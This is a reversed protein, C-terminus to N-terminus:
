SGAVPLKSGLTSRYAPDHFLKATVPELDTCLVIAGAALLVLPLLYAVGGFLFRAGDALAGGVSGGDWGAYFVFAFFAALAVLALGILEVHHRELEPAHLSISPLRSRRRSRTRSGKKPTRRSAM